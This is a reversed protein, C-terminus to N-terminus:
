SVAGMVVYEPHAVALAMISRELAEGSPKAQGSVARQERSRITAWKSRNRTKPETAIAVGWSTGVM